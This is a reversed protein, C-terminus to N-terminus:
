SRHADAAGKMAMEGSPQSLSGIGPFLRQRDLGRVLLTWITQLLLSLDLFPSWYIMYQLDFRTKDESSHHERLGHVQALGTVGAQIKLRQRQWESYGKVMEPSEPRPGVLSMDGCLVNWLQPLETLSWRLLFREYGSLHASERDVNLRWMRFCTGSKGCRSEARFARGKMRYVLSAALMLLPSVLLLIGASLILDVARKLVLAASPTRYEQLSLLPLGDIEMLQAKSVYLDYRQPVLYIQMSSKRCEDILKRIELRDHQDMAVILTDVKQQRLLDLIQLTKLTSRDPSKFGHFAGSESPFLYGIIQFPLEPHSAIKNAFERAIPGDGLVICRHGTNRLQSSVLFRVMCRLGILGPALFLAFYFLVFRSYSGKILFAFALLFVMLLSVAVIIKSLIAPLHWGGKFGDLNMEFYLLAWAALAPVLLLAYTRLLGSLDAVSRAGAYHVGIALALAGGLWVLDAALIAYRLIRTTMHM